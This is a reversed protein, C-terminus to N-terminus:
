VFRFDFISTNILSLSAFYYPVVFSKDVALTSSSSISVFDKIEHIRSKTRASYSSRKYKEILFAKIEATALNMLPDSVNESEQLSCM